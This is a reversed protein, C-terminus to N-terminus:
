FKSGKSGNFTSLVNSEFSSVKKANEKFDKITMTIVEELLEPYSINKPTFFFFALSGPITNPENVYAKKEKTDILFDFRTIGKLNLARFAKKSLTYIEEELTKDLSAPIKFGANEINGSTKKSSGNKSGDKLYKDEFTLFDNNTLMEGIMSTKMFKHNGIVACDVEMLNNIAKEIIIKEDYNIADLIAEELDKEKKVYHIGISSGLRAPKVVVPYNLQKVKELITTKDNLYEDEYFWIYDVVPIGESQMIQKQAVKDQGLSAGLMDCGVYPINLTDLYGALSGDEVGKGHVIPFAIDITDIVKNVFSNTKILVFKNNKKTLCVKPLSTKIKEMDKFTEMKTLLPSTYWNREKDIYIPVIEYKDKNLFEMAQVATIISVEHEVSDGGFIIGIKIKM